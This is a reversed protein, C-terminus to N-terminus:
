SKFPYKGTYFRSFNKKLNKLKNTGFLSFNDMLFKCYFEAKFDYHDFDIDKYFKYVFYRLHQKQLSINLQKKPYVATINRFNFNSKVLYEIETKPEESNVIFKELQLFYDLAIHYELTIPILDIPNDIILNEEQNPKFISDSEKGMEQYDPYFINTSNFNNQISRIQFYNELKNEIIVNRNDNFENLTINLKGIEINNFQNKDSKQNRIEKKKERLWNVVAQKQNDCDSFVNHKIINLVFFQVQGIFNELCGFEEDFYADLLLPIEFPDERSLHLALWFNFSPHNVSIVHAQRKKTESKITDFNISDKYAEIADKLRSEYEEITIKLLDPHQAIRLNKIVEEACERVNIQYRYKEYVEEEQNEM